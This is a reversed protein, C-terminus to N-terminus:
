GVRAPQFQPLSHAPAGGYGLAVQRAQAWLGPVQHTLRWRTFRDLVESLERVAARIQDLDDDFGDEARTDPIADDDKRVYAVVRLLREYQANTIDRFSQESVAVLLTLFLLTKRRVQHKVLDEGGLAALKAQLDLPTRGCALAAQLTAVEQESVLHLGGANGRPTRVM